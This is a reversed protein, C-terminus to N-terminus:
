TWIKRATAPTPRSCCRRARRNGRMFWRPAYAGIPILAVDIMGLTAENHITPTYLKGLNPVLKSVEAEIKRFQKPKNNYLWHLVDPLNSVDATLTHEGLIPSSAPLKRLPDAWELNAFQQYVADALEYSIPFVGSGEPRGLRLRYPALAEPKAELKIPEAPM